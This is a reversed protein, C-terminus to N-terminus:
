DVIKPDINKFLKDIKKLKSIKVYRKIVKISIKYIIAIVIRFSIVIFFSYIIIWIGEFPITFIKPLKSSIPINFINKLNDVNEVKPLININDINSINDTNSINLQSSTNNEEKTNGEYKQIINFKISKDSFDIKENNEDILYLQKFEFYGSNINVNEKVKLNITLLNSSNNLKLTNYYYIKKNNEDYCDEVIKNNVLIDEKTLSEFISKDAYLYGCICKLKVENDYNTLDINIQINDSERIQNTNTYLNVNVEQLAYVNNIFATFIVVIIAVNLKKM